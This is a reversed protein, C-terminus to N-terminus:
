KMCEARTKGTFEVFEESPTGALIGDEIVSFEKFSYKAQVKEFVCACFEKSSGAGECSSMFADVASQPYAAATNATNAISAPATKTSNSNATTNTKPTDGSCAAFPLCCAIMLLFIRM